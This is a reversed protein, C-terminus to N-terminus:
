SSCSRVQNWYPDVLLVRSAATLNLGLGGARLSALMIQTEKNNRFEAISKDRADHSIAGSYVCYGWREAQCVRGLIHIMALHQTFIIIKAEPDQELWELVQAKIALTKASPLMDGKKSLWSDDKAKKSKKGAPPTSDPSATSEQEVNVAEACPELSDYPTGCEDCRAQDMGRRAAMAQLGLACELCYLHLCSTIHPQEPEQRCGSCLSAWQESKKLDDLYRKFRFSLGHKGGLAADEMSEMDVLDTAVVDNETLTTGGSGKMNKRGRNAALIQKLHMLLVKGEEDWEGENAVLNNLKEFDERELIDTITDQIILCHATLQRLRLIMVWINSYNKQLGRQGSKAMSNIRNVMRAKVIEYITRELPNFELRLTHESNSPLNLLRGGFLQTLHTRRLVVKRLFWALRQYGQPSEPTCFNEKFLKFSGAYEFRLFKLYPYSPFILITLM